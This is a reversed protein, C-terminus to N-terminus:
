LRYFVSLGFSPAIGPFLDGDCLWSCPNERPKVEVNSETLLLFAGAELAIGIKRSLNFDRGIRPVLLLTTNKEYENEDHLYNLGAKAFWPRRTSFKSSGGFHYYYDAGLSFIEDDPDPLIGAHLGLQSQGLQFRLGLNVMEPYGVGAAINIKEQGWCLSGIFFIILGPLWTKLIKLSKMVTFIDLFHRWFNLLGFTKVEMKSNLYIPPVAM